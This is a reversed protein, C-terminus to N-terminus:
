IRTQRWGRDARQTPAKPRAPTASAPRPSLQASVGLHDCQTAYENCTCTNIIVASLAALTIHRERMMGKGIEGAAVLGACIEEAQEDM